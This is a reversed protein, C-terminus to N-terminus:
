GHQWLFWAHPVTLIRDGDLGRWGVRWRHRHGAGIPMRGVSIPAAVGLSAYTPLLGILVTAVGMSVLTLILMSKRGLRDGFQSLIIAGIPRAFFGVGITGISLLKGM